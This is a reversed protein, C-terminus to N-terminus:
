KLLSFAPKIMPYLSAYRKYRKLLTERLAEDPFFTQGFSCCDAMAESVSPYDGIACAALMQAGLASADAELSPRVPIGFLSAKMLNVTNDRSAGGSVTLCTASPAGMTQYIHYISFVVGELASYALAEKTTSGNLGFYVGRADTDWIPAREGNLYPLFIPPDTELCRKIDIQSHGSLELALNASAGSSATVGYHANGFFYGGSVLGDDSNGIVPEILGLHESTGTIDFADGNKGIGMGLLASFFDNCGIAVPTGVPIGTEASAQKSVTGALTDPSALPPLSIGDLGFRKLLSVSYKGSKLNALGRWSFPDSGTNGTLKKCILDKPMCVDIAGTVSRKINLLRPLPYSILKPHPMSIENIFEERTVASLVESLEDKGIPENWSVTHTGNTVYTGVQSSLGVARVESLELRKCAKCLADWWGNPSIECYSEKEKIVNGNQSYVLKVSSTGLDIGLIRDTM